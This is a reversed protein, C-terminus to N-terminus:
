GRLPLFTSEHGMTQFVLSNYPQLWNQQPLQPKDRLHTRSLKCRHLSCLATPIGLLWTNQILDGM